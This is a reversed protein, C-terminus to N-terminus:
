EEKKLILCSSQIGLWFGPLTKEKIPNKFRHILKAEKKKSEEDTEVAYFCLLGAPQDVYVGITSCQHSGEVRRNIGKHWADYCSGAWGLGWSEENEGLGCTGDGARRGAGEYTAGIVVWGSYEVEWYCRSAWISEKCLVQPNYDFRQQRDLCPCVEDTLRIVKAGGETLWLVKNATREDLSINFWYKLLEERSTPEPINPEYVPLKEVPTNRAKIKMGTKRTQPTMIRQSSPM